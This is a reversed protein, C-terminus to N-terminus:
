ITVSWGTTAEIAAEAKTHFFSVVDSVLCNSGAKVVDSLALTFSTSNFQETGYTLYIRSAGADKVAESVFACIEAKVQGDVLMTSTDYILYFYVNTRATGTIDTVSTTITM